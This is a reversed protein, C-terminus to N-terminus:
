VAGLRVGPGAARALCRVLAVLAVFDVLFLLFHGEVRERHEILELEDVSTAAAALREVDDLREDARGLERQGRVAGGGELEGDGVM